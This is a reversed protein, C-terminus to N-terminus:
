IRNLKDRWFQLREHFPLSDNVMSPHAAEIRLYRTQSETTPIWDSPLFDSRPVGDSAFSTWLDLLMNSVKLDKLSHLRPFFVNSFMLLLESAHGSGLDVETSIGMFRNISIHLSHNYFYYYIPQESYKSLLQASHDIDQHFMYDTFLDGLENLQHPQRPDGISYYRTLIENLIKLNQRDRHDDDSEMGTMYSFYKVPNEVFKNLLRGNRSLLRRIMSGGENRNTGIIVPVSNIQKSEMLIRPKAPLFPSEREVDVRPGFGVPFVQMIEIKKQFQVVQRAPKERLCALLENSNSQPCNLYNALKRTYQGVSKKIAWSNLSTGSQSIARHFLGKSHPSLLHYHVSVGGASSGFLTVSNPNGDFSRIHERVWKLAMTQDLLGYNGPAESDETSLFGFSGLRYQVTVLVINRDLFYGPGALDTTAGASGFFFSGPHIYVMVPRPDDSVLNHTYINLTLCDEVGMFKQLMGNYQICPSEERSADLINGFWPDVPVPDKFRLEGVPSKAYPIGRFAFFSRRSSSIMKSGRVEGLAPITVIPSRDSLACVNFYCLLEVFNM